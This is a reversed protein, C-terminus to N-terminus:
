IHILSLEYVSAIAYAYPVANGGSPIAESLLFIRKKFIIGEKYLLDLHEQRLRSHDACRGARAERGGIERPEDFHPLLFM